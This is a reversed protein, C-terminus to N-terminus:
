CLRDVGRGLQNNVNKKMIHIGDANISYRGPYYQTHLSQYSVAKIRAHLGNSSISVILYEYFVQVKTQM